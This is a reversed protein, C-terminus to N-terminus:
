KVILVDCKSHSVILSSVGGILFREIGSIGRRGLVILDSEQEAAEDLICDAPYGEEVSGTVQPVLPSVARLGRSLIDESKKVVDDFVDKTIPPVMLSYSTALSATDAVVIIRLSASQTKALNAARSLARDANKSGDYGVLIRQYNSM